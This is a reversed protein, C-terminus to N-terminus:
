KEQRNAFVHLGIRITAAPAASMKTGQAPTLTKVGKM